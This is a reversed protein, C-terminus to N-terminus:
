DIEFVGRIYEIKYTIDGYKVILYELDGSSYWSYIGKESIIGLARAELWTWEADDFVAEVLDAVRTILEEVADSLNSYGSYVLDTTPDAKKKSPIQLLVYVNM